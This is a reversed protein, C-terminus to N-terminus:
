VRHPAASKHWPLIAPQGLNGTLLEHLQLVEKWESANVLRGHEGIVGSSRSEIGSLRDPFLFPLGRRLMLGSM